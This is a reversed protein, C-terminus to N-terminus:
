ALTEPVGAKGSKKIQLGRIGDMEAFINDAINLGDRVDVSRRARAHEVGPYRLFKVIMSADLASDYIQVAFEIDLM